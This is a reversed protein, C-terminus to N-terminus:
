ISYQMYCIRLCIKWKLFDYRFQSRPITSNPKSNYAAHGLEIPYKFLIMSSLPASNSKSNIPSQM